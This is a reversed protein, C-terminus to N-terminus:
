ERLSVKGASPFDPPIKETVKGTAVWEVGRQLTVIFGVCRMAEVDHGLTTHFVRGKGFTTAFLMPEDDGTGGTDVASFATALLHINKAPGRLSDYLEDTNHMWSEPLGRTIPHKLDRTVIQYAHRRGHHGGKGPRNDLLLKGARYKAMPGHAETRDGWGGLMIMENYATWEPFANDAAHVSVFGGGARVFKEFDAKTADSWSEGNYNSVVAKYAGFNPRFTAMAGGRAPSTTVDVTFRGTQELLRELVPSTEIWNHNNQGDVLLVPIKDAAPIGTASLAFLLVTSNLRM